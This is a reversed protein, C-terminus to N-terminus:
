KQLPFNKPELTSIVMDLAPEESIGPAKVGLLHCITPTLSAISGQHPPFKM